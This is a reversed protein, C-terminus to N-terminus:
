AGYLDLLMGKLATVVVETIAVGKERTGFGADGYVGNPTMQKMTRYFGAKGGQLMDGEAWDFTPVNTKPQIKDLQVLHPAILLMLATEFEGAHGAGGQGSENLQKLQELATRWWTAVVINCQPNRYGFIELFTGTIAQNGGHANLIFLNKFGYKVVCNAIDTMQNLFTAHQVSLSGAFDTHHESCGVSISPLILIQQGM